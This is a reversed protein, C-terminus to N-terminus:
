SSLKVGKPRNSSVVFYDCCYGPVSITNRVNNYIDTKLFKQNPDVVYIEYWMKLHVMNIISIFIHQFGQVQHM